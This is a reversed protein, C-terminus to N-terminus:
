VSSRNQQPKSAELRTTCLQKVKAHLPPKETGKKEPGRKRPSREKPDKLSGGQNPFGKSFCVKWKIPARGQVICLKRPEREVDEEGRSSEEAGM